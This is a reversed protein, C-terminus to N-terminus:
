GEQDGASLRVFGSAAPAVGSFQAFFKREDQFLWELVHGGQGSGLGTVRNPSGAQAENGRDFGV